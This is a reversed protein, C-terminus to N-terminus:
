RHDEKFFGQDPDLNGASPHNDQGSNNGIETTNGVFLRPMGYLFETLGVFKEYELSLFREFNSRNENIFTGDM